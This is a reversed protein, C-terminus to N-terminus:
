LINKPGLITIFLIHGLLVNPSYKYIVYIVYHFSNANLRISQKAQRTSFNHGIVTREADIGIGQKNDTIGYASGM